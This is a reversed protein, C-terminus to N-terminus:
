EGYAGSRLDEQLLQRHQHTPTAPAPLPAPSPSNITVSGNGSLEIRYDYGCAVTPVPPPPVGATCPPIFVYEGLEIFQDDGLSALHLNVTLLEQVTVSYSVALGSLTINTSTVVYPDATACYSALLDLRKNAPPVTCHPNPNYPCDIHKFCIPKCVKM